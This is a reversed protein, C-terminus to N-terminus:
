CGHRREPVRPRRLGHVRCGHRVEPTSTRHFSDACSVRGAGPPAQEHGQPRSGKAAGSGFPLTSFSSVLGRRTGRPSRQLPRALLAVRCALQDGVTGVWARPALGVAAGCGIRERGDGVSPQQSRFLRQRGCSPLAIVVQEVPPHNRIDSISRDGRDLRWVQEIRQLPDFGFVEGLSGMPRALNATPHEAIRDRGPRAPRSM